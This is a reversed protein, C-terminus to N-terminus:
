QLASPGFRSRCDLRCDSLQRLSSSWVVPWWVSSMQCHVFSWRWIHYCGAVLLWYGTDLLWYGTDLLWYGTVLIWCGTVLLWYGAVLLWCGAVLIWCGTDLLWCGAVLLWNVLLWYGTLWCGAVLLWISSRSM